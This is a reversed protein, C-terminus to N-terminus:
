KEPFGADAWCKLINLQSASLSSGRPMTKNTIVERTFDGSTLISKLGSYTNYTPHCGSSTCAGDLINKVNSNYTSATGDCTTSATTSTKNCSWLSLLLTSVLATILVSTKM